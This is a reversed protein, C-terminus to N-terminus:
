ESYDLPIEPRYIRLFNLREEPRKPGRVDTHARNLRQVDPTHVVSQTPIQSRIEGVIFRVVANDSPSRARNLTDAPSSYKNWDTSMANGQNRFAGPMITGDSEFWRRHVRFFLSDENPINESEWQPPTMQAAVFFDM